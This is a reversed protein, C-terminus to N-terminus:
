ASSRDTLDQNAFDSFNRSTGMNGTEANILVQTLVSRANRESNRGLLAERSNEM